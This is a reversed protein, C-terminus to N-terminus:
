RSCGVCNDVVLAKFLSFSINSGIVSRFLSPISIVILLGANIFGSNIFAKMFPSFTASGDGLSVLAASVPSSKSSQRVTGAALPSHHIRQYNREVIKDNDEIFPEIIRCTLPLVWLARTPACLVNPTQQLLLVLSTEHCSVFATFQCHRRQHELPVLLPNAVFCFARKPCMATDLKAMAKCLRGTDARLAFVIQGIKM